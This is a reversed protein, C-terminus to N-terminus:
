CITSLSLRQCHLESVVRLMERWCPEAFLRRIHRLELRQQGGIRGIFHDAPQDARADAIDPVVIVGEDLRNSQLPWTAGGASRLTAASQPPAHYLTRQRM